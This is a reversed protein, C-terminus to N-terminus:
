EHLGDSPFKAWDASGFPIGAKVKADPATGAQCLEPVHALEMHGAMCCTRLTKPREEGEEFCYLVGCGPCKYVHVTNKSRYM